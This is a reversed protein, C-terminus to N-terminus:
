RTLQLFSAMVSKNKEAYELTRLHEAHKKSLISKQIAEDREQLMKEARSKELPELNTMGRERQLHDMSSYTKMNEYDKESVAFVTQDKHVKRLDDYKLKSFPDSTVYTSRDTDYLNNGSSYTLNEVGRYQTLSNSNNKITNIAQSLGGTSKVENFEYLPDNNKFWDNVSTDKKEMMNSEFLSNFKEQFNQQGMEKISKNVQAHTTKDIDQPEYVVEEHPVEINTKQNESYYEYVVKYADRYFIFYDPPLRSKDPHMKLVMLKARKLEETSFNYDLSFLELIEKFSYMKLNLNHTNSKRSCQKM